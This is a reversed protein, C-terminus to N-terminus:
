VDVKVSNPDLAMPENETVWTWMRRVTACNENYVTIDDALQALNRDIESVGDLLPAIEDYSRAWEPMGKLVCLLASRMRREGEYARKYADAEAVHTAALKGWLMPDVPREFGRGPHRCQGLWAGCGCQCMPDGAM